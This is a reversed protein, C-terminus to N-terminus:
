IKQAACKVAHAAARETGRPTGQRLAALEAGHGGARQEQTRRAQMGQRAQPGPTRYACQRRWAALYAAATKGTRWWECCRQRRERVCKGDITEHMCELV